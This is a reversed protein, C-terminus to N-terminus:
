TIPSSPEDDDDMARVKSMDARPVITNGANPQRPAHILLPNSNESQQFPAGWVDSIDAFQAM